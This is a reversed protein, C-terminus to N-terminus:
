LIQLNFTLKNIDDMKNNSDKEIVTLKTSVMEKNTGSYSVAM